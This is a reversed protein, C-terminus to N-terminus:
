LAYIVSIISQRLTNVGCEIVEVCATAHSWRWDNTGSRKPLGRLLAAYNPPHLTTTCDIQSLALNFWICRTDAIHNLWVRAVLRIFHM